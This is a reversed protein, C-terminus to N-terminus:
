ALWIGVWAITSATYIAGLSRIALDARSRGLVASAIAFCMWACAGGALLLLCRLWPTSVFPALSVYLPLSALVWREVLHSYLEAALLPGSLEIITGSALEPEAEHIDYPLRGSSSFCAVVMMATAVGLLAWGRAGPIFWRSALALAVSLALGVENVVNLFVRRFSGIAAFPNSSACGTAMSLSHLSFLMVMVAVVPGVGVAGFATFAALSAALAVAISLSILVTLGALEAGRPLKAEKSALKLIDLWTQTVPPGIRSHIAARVKREVGDLLPPLLLSAVALAAALSASVVEADL